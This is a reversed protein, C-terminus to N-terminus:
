PSTNRAAMTLAGHVPHQVVRYLSPKMSREELIELLREALFPSHVAIGGAIALTFPKEHIGLQHHVCEVLEAWAYAVRSAITEVLPDSDVFSLVTCESVVCHDTTTQGVPVRCGGFREGERDITRSTSRSAASDASPRSGDRPVLGQTRHTRYRIWKRRRRALLGLRWSACSELKASRWTCHLRDRRDIHYM